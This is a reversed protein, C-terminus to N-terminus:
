NSQDSTIQVHLSGYLVYLHSDIAVVHPLRVTCQIASVHTQWYIKVEDICLFCCGLLIKTKSYSIPRIYTINNSCTSIFRRRSVSSCFICFSSSSACLWFSAWNTVNRLFCWSAILWSVSCISWSCLSLCFYAKHASANKSISLTRNQFYNRLTYLRYQSYLLSYLLHPAKALEAWGDMRPLYILVPKLQSPSPLYPKKWEHIVAHIVPLVTHDTLLTHLIKASSCHPERM